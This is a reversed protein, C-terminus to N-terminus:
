AAADAPLAMAPGQSTRTPVALLRFTMSGHDLRRQKRLDAAVTTMLRGRSAIRVGKSSMSLSARKGQGLWNVPFRVFGTALNPLSLSAGQSQMREANLIMGVRM